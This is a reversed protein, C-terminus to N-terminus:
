NSSKMQVQEVVSMNNSANNVVYIASGDDAAAVALPSQVSREGEALLNITQLIRLSAPDLVRLAGSNADSAYLRRGDPASAIGTIAVWEQPINLLVGQLTAMDIVTIDREMGASNLVYARSGDPLLAIGRAAAQAPVVADDLVYVGQNRHCFHIAAAHPDVIVLRSGDRTAALLLLGPRASAQYLRLAQEKSWAGQNRALVLLWVANAKDAYAVLLRKEDAGMGLALPRCDPSPLPLDSKSVTMGPLTIECLQSSDALLAFAQPKSASPSFVCSIVQEAGLVNQQAQTLTNYAVIGPTSTYGKLPNQWVFVSSNDPAVAADTMRDGLMVADGAARYTALTVLCAAGAGNATLVNVGDPSVAVARPNAGAKIPTGTVKVRAEGGWCDLLSLTGDGQNAVFAYTGGPAVAIACPQSGVTVPNRAGINPNRTDIAVVTNDGACCALLVQDGSAVALALPQKGVNQITKGPLLGGEATVSAMSITGDGSNAVYIVAGSAMRAMGRPAKGVALMGQLKLGSGSDALAVLSGSSGGADTVVYAHKGDPDLLLSQPAGNLALAPQPAFVLQGASSSVAVPTLTKDGTNAVLMLAGDASFAIAGPLAGVAVTTIPSCDVTDLIILRNNDSDSVAIFPAGPSAAVGNATGSLKIAAPQPDFASIVLNRALGPVGAAGDPALTIMQPGSLPVQMSGIPQLGVESPFSKSTSSIAIQGSGAVNVAWALTAQHSAEQCFIETPGGTFSNIVPLELVGASRQDQNGLDVHRGQAILTFATKDAALTAPYSAMGTVPTPQSNQWLTLLTPAGSVKWRVTVAATGDPGAVAPSPTVSFEDIVVHAVKDLVITFVGDRYGPIKSYTVLMATPGPQYTTSIQDLLFGVTDGPVNGLLPQGALPLLDWSMNQASSRPVIQWTDAHSLRTVQINQARANSTLAGFGYDDGPPGYVFSINFVSDKGATISAPKRGGAFSLQLANNVTGPVGFSNLIEHGDLELQLYDQLNDDQEDPANQLAVKFSGYVNRFQSDYLQTTLDVTPQPASAINLNAVKITAPAGAGLVIPANPTMGVMQAAPFSQFRWGDASFSLERFAGDSMGLGQLSLYILTGQLPDPPLHGPDIIAPAPALTVSGQNLGIEWDLKNYGPQSSIYIINAATGAAHNVFQFSLQQAVGDAGIEQSRQNDM